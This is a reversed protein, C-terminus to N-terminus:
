LFIIDVNAFYRSGKSIVEYKYKHIRQTRLYESTIIRVLIRQGRMKVSGLEVSKPTTKRRVDVVTLPKNLSDKASKKALKDVAINHKDKSHGKVWYFDVKLRSKGILKVLEKWLDANLVPRGTRARWKNRSWEFMAYKYNDVVYRSDTHIAIRNVSNLEKHKLAEKLSTICAYLEMQNNTANKYGPLEIDQVVEDGSENVTIFRVGIGGVRPGSFSSGDTYINLADEITM